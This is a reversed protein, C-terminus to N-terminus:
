VTLIMLFSYIGLVTLLVRVLPEERYNLSDLHSAVPTSISQQGDRYLVKKENPILTQERKKEHTPDFPQIAQSSTNEPQINKSRQRELPV